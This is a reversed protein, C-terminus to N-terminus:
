GSILLGGNCLLHFTSLGKGHFSSRGCRGIFKVYLSVFWVSWSGSVDASRSCPCLTLMNGYWVLGGSALRTALAM